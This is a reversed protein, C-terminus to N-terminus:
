WTTFRINAIRRRDARLFKGATPTPTRAAKVARTSDAGREAACAIEKASTCADVGCDDGVDTVTGNMEACVAPSRLTTTTPQFSAVEVTAETVSVLPLAYTRATPGVMCAPRPVCLM